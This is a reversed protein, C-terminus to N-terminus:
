NTKRSQISAYFHEIEERAATLSLRDPIKKELTGEKIVLQSVHYSDKDSAQLLTELFNKADSYSLSYGKVHTEDTHLKQHIIMQCQMSHIQTTAFTAVITFLLTFSKMSLEKRLHKHIQNQKEPRYQIM